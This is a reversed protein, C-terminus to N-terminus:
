PSVWVCVVNVRVKTVDVLNVDCTLNTGAAVTQYADVLSTARKIDHDNGNLAIANSIANTTGNKITVTNNADASAGDVCVWVDLVRLARGTPVIWTKDANGDFHVVFPVGPETNNTLLQVAGPKLPAGAGALVICDVVPNYTANADTASSLAIAVIRQLTNADTNAPVAKGGAGSTLLDGASVPARCAVRTKTGAPAYRVAQANLANSEAVGIIAQDGATATRVNGDGTIRVFTDMVVQGDARATYATVTEAAGCPAIQVIWAALGLALWCTLYM